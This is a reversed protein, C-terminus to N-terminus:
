KQRWAQLRKVVDAPTHGDWPPAQHLEVIDLPIHDVPLHYTIDGTPLNMGAIIWGEMFTGDSHFRSWWSIERHANMLAIFLAIRHEYLENFTHYGDSTNGDIKHTSM